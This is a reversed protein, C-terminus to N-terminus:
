HFFTRITKKKNLRKSQISQMLLIEPEYLIEKLNM